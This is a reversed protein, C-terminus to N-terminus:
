GGHGDPNGNSKNHNIKEGMPIIGAYSDDESSFPLAIELHKHPLFVWPQFIYLFFLIFLVGLVIGIWKINKM